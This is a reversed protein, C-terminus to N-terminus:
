RGRQLGQDSGQPRACHWAGGGSGAVIPVASTELYVMQGNKHININEIYNLPTKLSLAEQFIQAVQEREGPPMFDFPPKGLAEKPEYGLLDRIKPSAYTYVGTKDVECLWDSTTKVLSRDIATQSRLDLGHM